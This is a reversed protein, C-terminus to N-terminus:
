SKNGCLGEGPPRTIFGARIFDVLLRNGKRLNCNACVYILNARANTGGSSVPVIHDIHGKTFTEGCYPCRNGIAAKVERVVEITLPVDGLRVRRNHKSAIHSARGIETKDYASQRALFSDRHAIYYEAHRARSDAIRGADYQKRREVHEADYLAQKARREEAHNAYREADYVARCAKCESCLGDKRSNNKSFKALPKDTDCKSCHKTPPRRVSLLFSKAVGGEHQDFRWM